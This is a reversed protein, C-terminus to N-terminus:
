VKGGPGPMDIGFNKGPQYLTAAGISKNHTEIIDLIAKRNDAGFMIIKVPVGAKSLDFHNTNGHKLHEWAGAPIGLMVVPMGSTDQTLAFIVKKDDM